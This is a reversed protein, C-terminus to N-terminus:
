GQFYKLFGGFYGSFVKQPETVFGFTNKYARHFKERTVTESATKLARSTDMMHETLSKGVVVWGDDEEESILKTALTAVDDATMINQYLVNSFYAKLLSSVPAFIYQQPIGTLVCATVLPLVPGSSVMPFFMAGVSVAKSTNDSITKELSDITDRLVSQLFSVFENKVLAKGYAQISSDAQASKLNAFRPKKNEPVSIMWAGKVLAGALAGSLVTLYNDSTIKIQSYPATFESLIQDIANKLLGDGCRGITKGLPMKSLDYGSLKAILFSSVTMNSHVIKQGSDTQLDGVSCLRNMLANKIIPEIAEAVVDLSQQYLAKSSSELSQVQMAVFQPQTFDHQESDAVVSGSVFGFAVSGFLASRLFYKM